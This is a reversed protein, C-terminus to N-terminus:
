HESVYGNGSEGDLKLDYGFANERPNGGRKSKRKGSIPHIGHIEQLTLVDRQKMDKALDVLVM